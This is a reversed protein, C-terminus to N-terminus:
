SIRPTARVRPASGGFSPVGRKTTGTNSRATEPPTTPTSSNITRRTHTQTHSIGSYRTSRSSSFTIRRQPSPARAPVAGATTRTSQLARSCPASPPPSLGSLLILVAEGNISTGSVVRDGKNATVLAGDIASVTLTFKAAGAGSPTHGIM